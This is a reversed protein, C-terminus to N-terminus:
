ENSCKQEMEIINWKKLINQFEKLAEISFQEKELDEKETNQIILGKARLSQIKRNTKGKEQELLQMIERKNKANEMDAEKEKVKEYEEIEKQVKKEILKKLEEQNLMEQLTTNNKAIAVFELLERSLNRKLSPFAYTYIDSLSEEIIVNQKKTKEQNIILKEKLDIIMLRETKIKKDGSIKGLFTIEEKEIEEKEQKLKELQSEKILQQIKKAFAKQFTKKMEEEYQIELQKDLLNKLIHINEEEEKETESKKQTEKKKQKKENNEKIQEIENPIETQSITLIPCFIELDKILTLYKNETEKLKLYTGEVEKLIKTIEEKIPESKQEKEM